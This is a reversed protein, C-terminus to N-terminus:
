SIGKLEKKRSYMLSDAREFVEHFNADTDQVFDSIGAAVVVGGTINNNDATEDMEFMLHQRNAYDEGELIVVFEDGGIRYVPSHKFLKCIMMCATKIFEDGAKHGLTDNIQKLGNVDCVVVAFEEVLNNKIRLNMSDEKEAYAHKSKVGTLQDRYAMNQVFGLKEENEAERKRMSKYNSFIMISSLAFLGMVVMSNMMAVRHMSDIKSNVYDEESMRYVEPDSEGLCYDRVDMIADDAAERTSEGMWTLATFLVLALMGVWVIVSNGFRRQTDKYIVGRFFIFGLVGWITFLFYSEKAMSSDAAFAPIQILAALLVMIIIGAMGTCKEIWANEKKAMKFVAASIFCYVLITGITTVDVIWGIATRGVFPIIVSIGTIILVARYPIGQRNLRAFGLPIIHDKAMAYLLRSLALTICILSTIILSFLVATLIVKGALGMYRGAAYFPPLADLGKLSDRRKLYDMWGSFGEPYATISLIVILIYLLTTIIVSWSIIKFSKKHPFNFEEASHSINEFGVYAWPAMCAIGTIQSGISTDPIFLPEMSSTLPDRKFLAILACVTLGATFVIALIIVITQTLKGAYMCLLSMLIIASISLLAEGFYVSYGAVTYNPGFRFLDGFFYRAFLPLSTANAWLVAIYTLFLFWAALFARDHGFIETVYVYVGGADPYRNILYHYNRGIILMISAGILMGIISGAPGAKLLYSSGTFVFSGWGIASGVSLAWVGLPSLHPILKKEEMITEGVRNDTM